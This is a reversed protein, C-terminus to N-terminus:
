KHGISDNTGGDEHINVLFKPSKLESMKELGRTERERINNCFIGLQKLNSM